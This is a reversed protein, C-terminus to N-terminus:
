DGIASEFKMQETVQEPQFVGDLSKCEPKEKFHKQGKANSLCAWCFWTFCRPCQMHTCETDKMLQFYQGCKSNPCAKACYKLFLQNLILEARKNRENIDVLESSGM